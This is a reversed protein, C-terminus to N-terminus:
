VFLQSDRDVDLLRKLLAYRAATSPDQLHNKMAERLDNRAADLAALETEVIERGRGVADEGPHVARLGVWEDETDLLTRLTRLPVDLQRTLREIALRTGYTPDALEEWSREDTPQYREIAARLSDDGEFPGDATGPEAQM